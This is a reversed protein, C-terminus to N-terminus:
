KLAYKVLFYDIFEIVTDNVLPTGNIPKPKISL